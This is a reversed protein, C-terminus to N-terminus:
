NTWSESNAWLADHQLGPKDPHKQRCKACPRGRPQVIVKSLKDLPNGFSDLKATNEELDFLGCNGTQKYTQKKM